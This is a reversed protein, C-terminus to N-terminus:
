KVGKKKREMDLASAYKRSKFEESTEEGLKNNLFEVSKNREEIENSKNTSDM